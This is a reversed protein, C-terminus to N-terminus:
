CTVSQQIPHRQLLSRARERSLNRGTWPDGDRLADALPRLTCSRQPEPLRDVAPIADASLRSLYSLDTEGALRVHNVNRGAIFGDPNLMGLALLGVAGSAAVARPLWAAKLRIGAIAILVIVLGMWLEFAHVWLRLRTWGYAEEYLYLRRLAVVVVVLTLACLLGLLVRIAARDPRGARPAYRVAVALVALVLGTVILLQWFGQRAYEAYTLGTSHLLRDKDAALLVDAQVAVFGLFLLDLAAIPIIWPTRGVPSAAPPRKFRPRAVALFAGSAVVTTTCGFVLVRPVLSWAPIEPLLGTLARGFAVDATAFLTGFVALLTATILVSGIVPGSPRRPRTVTAVGRGMWPVSRPVALPLALGGCLLETWSRGGTLAYSGLPVALLIALANVWEADVIAPLALLLVALAAFALSTRNRRAIPSLAALVAVGVIPVNLGLRGPFVAAALLGAVAAAALLAPSVPRSAEPWEVQLPPPVPGRPERGSRGRPAPPRPVIQPGPTHPLDTM